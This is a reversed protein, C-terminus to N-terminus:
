DQTSDQITLLHLEFAKEVDQVKIDVNEDIEALISIYHLSTHNSPSVRIHHITLHLNEMIGAIISFISRMQKYCHIGILVNKDLIQVKIDNIDEHRKSELDDVHDDHSYQKHVLTAHTTEILNTSSKITRAAEELSSVRGQLEGIYKIADELISAKDLKKLQPIAKALLAFLQSFRERRKREALLHDQSQLPSRCIRKAAMSSNSISNSMMVKETIMDYNLENDELFFSDAVPVNINGFSIINQSSSSSNSSPSSCSFAIKPINELSNSTSPNQNPLSTFMESLLNKFEFPAEENDNTTNNNNNFRTNEM